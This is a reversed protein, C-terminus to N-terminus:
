ARIQSLKISNIILPEYKNCYNQLFFLSSVIENLYIYIESVTKFSNLASCIGIGSAGYYIAFPASLASMGSSSIIPLSVSKAIAYTSSLSASAKYISSIISLKTVQNIYNKTSIGETQLMHVGLDQLSISLDIQNNLSLIHPITVCLDNEKVLRQTEKVLNKIQSKSFFIGKKYFIDFNGIELIDAGAIKCEYLAIPDISSVCIPFNTISRIITVIEPSAAIDIYSAGALEAAKILRIIHNLDFNYLGAIVKIVQKYLIKERLTTHFLAM